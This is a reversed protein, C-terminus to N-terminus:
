KLLEDLDRDVTVLEDLSAKSRAATAKASSIRRSHRCRARSLDGEAEKLKAMRRREKAERERRKRERGAAMRAVFDDKEEFSYDDDDDSCAAAILIGGLACGIIPILPIM